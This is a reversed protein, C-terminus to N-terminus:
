ATSGTGTGRQTKWLNILFKLTGYCHQIFLTSHITYFSYHRIVLTSHSTYFSYHIIVKKPTKKPTKKPPNKSAFMSVDTLNPGRLPLPNLNKKYQVFNGM